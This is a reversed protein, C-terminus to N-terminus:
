RSRAAAPSSIKILRRPLGYRAQARGLWCQRGAARSGLRRARDRSRLNRRHGHVRSTGISRRASRRSRDRAPLRRTLHKSRLGACNHAVHDCADIAQEVREFIGKWRIVVMPDVGVDFLATLAERLIRDGEHELRDLESFHPIASGPDDLTGLALAVVGGARSLVDTLEIAQDM